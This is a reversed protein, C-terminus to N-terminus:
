RALEELDSLFSVKLAAEGSDAAPLVLRMLWPLPLLAFLWPWAFEFM